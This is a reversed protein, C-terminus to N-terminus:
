RDLDNNGQIRFKDGPGDPLFLTRARSEGAAPRPKATSQLLMGPASSKPMRSARRGLPRQPAVGFSPLTETQFGASVVGPVDAM